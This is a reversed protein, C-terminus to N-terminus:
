MKGSFLGNAEVSRLGAKEREMGVTGRNSAGALFMPDPPASGKATGVKDVIGEGECNPARSPMNESSPGNGETSLLGEKDDGDEGKGLPTSRAAVILWTM